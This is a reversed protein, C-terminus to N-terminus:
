WNSFIHNFIEDTLNKVIDDLLVSEAQQLSQNAGFDFPRSVDFDQTTGSLTNNLTVHVSVSLRNISTQLKGNTSSIGTTSVSYDSVYAHIDYHANDSNTQTLRTQSIIKQKLRDTLTPSLQPNVYPARNEIFNVRVTKVSDPITGIDKFSYVHCSTSGFAVLSVSAIALIIQRM